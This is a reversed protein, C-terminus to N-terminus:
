ALIEKIENKIKEYIVEHPRFDVASSYIKELAFHADSAKKFEDTSSWLFIEREKWLFDLRECSKSGMDTLYLSSDIVENASPRGTNNIIIAESVEPFIFGFSRRGDIVSPLHIYDAEMADLARKIHSTFVYESGYIGVVYHVKKVTSEVTDLLEFGGKGFASVLRTQIQSDGRNITSLLANIRESDSKKYRTTIEDEIYEHLKGAVSLSAYANKYCSQKQFTLNKIKDSNNKLLVSNFDDLLNIIVETEGPYKPDTMHPATGDIVAVRKDGKELIIGDLSATDSSCFIAERSDCVDNFDYLCKKMLTSKGTGPGGKLIYIKEYRDPNFISNFYSRFGSYGNAAAFYSKKYTNDKM